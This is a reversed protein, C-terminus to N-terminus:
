NKVHLYYKADNLKYFVGENLKYFVGTTRFINLICSFDLCLDEKIERFM